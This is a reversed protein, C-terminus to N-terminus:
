SELGIQRAIVQADRYPPLQLPRIKREIWLMVILKIHGLMTKSITSCSSEVPLVDWWKRRMFLYAELYSGLYTRLPQSNHIVPADVIYSTKGAARATLVIDTGYMHFGDFNDDFTVGSATRVIITLEDVSTAPAPAFGGRGIVKQQGSSWVNGVQSGDRAKGTLGIVAWDPDTAEIQDIITHLRQEWGKPFYVDQHVFIYVDATGGVLEENFARSASDYGRKEILSGPAICESRLLCQELITDNNICAVYALSREPSTPM